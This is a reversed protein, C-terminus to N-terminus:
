MLRMMMSSIQLREHPLTMMSKMGTMGRAMRGDSIPTKRITIASPNAKADRHLPCRLLILLRKRPQPLRHFLRRNQLPLHFLRLLNFLRLQM